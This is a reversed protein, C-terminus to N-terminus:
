KSLISGVPAAFSNPLKYTHQVVQSGDTGYQLTITTEGTTLLKGAVVVIGSSPIVLKSSPVVDSLHAPDGEVKLLAFQSPHVIKEVISTVNKEVNINFHLGRSPFSFRKM